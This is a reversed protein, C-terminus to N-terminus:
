QVSVDARLAYQQALVSYKFYCLQAASGELKCLLNVNCFILLCKNLLLDIIVHWLEM